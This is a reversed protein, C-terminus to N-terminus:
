VGQKFEFGLVTMDDRRVEDGQYATLCRMLERELDMLSRDHFETVFDLFRRKGFPFRNEGGVQDLLGDTAMYYRADPDIRIEVDTFVFDAHSRVYGLGCRDGKIVRAGESDVVYLPNNAGAFLLRGSAPTIHCLTCDMGDDSVAEHKNNQRLADKILRNM